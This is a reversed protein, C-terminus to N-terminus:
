WVSLRGIAAQNFRDRISIGGAAALNRPNNMVINGGNAGANGAAQNVNAGIGALQNWNAWNARNIQRAATRNAYFDNQQGAQEQAARRDASSTQLSALDYQTANEQGALAERSALETRWQQSSDAARERDLALQQQQVAIQMARLQADAAGLDRRIKEEQNSLARVRADDQNAVAVRLQDQVNQLDAQLKGRSNEIAAQQDLNAQELDNKQLMESIGGAFERREGLRQRSYADRGLVEAAVAPNSYAMGRSAFAGRASQQADRTEQASLSGGLELDSMAQQELQSLVDNKGVQGPRVAAWSVGGAGVSAPNIANSAAVPNMQRLYGFTGGGGGSPAAIRSVGGAPMATSVGARQGSTTTQSASVTASQAGNGSGPLPQGVTLSEGEPRMVWTLGSPNMRAMNQDAVRGDRTIAVQRLTTYAM